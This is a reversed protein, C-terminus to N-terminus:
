YDLGEVGIKFYFPLMANIEEDTLLGHHNLKDAMIGVVKTLYAIKEYGKDCDDVADQIAIILTSPHHGSTVFRYDRKYIRHAM